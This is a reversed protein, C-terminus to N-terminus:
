STIRSLLSKSSTPALFLASPAELSILVLHILYSALRYSVKIIKSSAESGCPMGEAEM